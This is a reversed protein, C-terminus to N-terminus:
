GRRSPGAGHLPALGLVGGLTLFPCRVGERLFESACFGFECPVSCVSDLSPMVQLSGRAGWVGQADPAQVPVPVTM